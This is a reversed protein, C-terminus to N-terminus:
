RDCFTYALLVRLNTYDKLNYHMDLKCTANIIRNNKYFVHVIKGM